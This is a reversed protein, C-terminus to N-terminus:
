NRKKENKTFTLYDERLAQQNEQYFSDSFLSGKKVGRLITVDNDGLKYACSIDEPTSSFYYDYQVEPNHFGYFYIDITSDFSYTDDLVKSYLLIIVENQLAYLCLLPEGNEGGKRLEFFFYGKHKQHIQAHFNKRTNKLFNDLIAPDIFVLCNIESSSM